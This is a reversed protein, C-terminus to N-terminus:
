PNFKTIMDPLEEIPTNKDVMLATVLKEFLQQRRGNAPLKM